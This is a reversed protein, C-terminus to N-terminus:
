RENDYQPPLKVGRQRLENRIARATNPAREEWRDHIMILDTNTMYESGQERLEDWDLTDIRVDHLSTAIHLPDAGNLEVLVRLPTLDLPM